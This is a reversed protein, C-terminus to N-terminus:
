GPRCGGGWYGAWGMGALCAVAIQAVAEAVAIGRVAMLDALSFQLGVGFMLLIVGIESLQSALSLDAVYGPTFPGNAVGALLYGAILPSRLRHAALGFVFALCLGAVLTTILPAEHTTRGFYPLPPRRCPRFARYDM